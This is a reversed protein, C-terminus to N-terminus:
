MKMKLYMGLARDSYKIHNVLWDVCLDKVEQALPANIGEMMLREKLKMFTRVFQEHQAKHATASSYNYQAMYKEENGFHFVVYDTLYQVIKAVEERATTGKDVALLLSNVRVILEKHQTDIDSSGSALNESWQLSM